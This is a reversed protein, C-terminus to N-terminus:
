KIKVTNQLNKTEYYQSFIAIEAKVVKEILEITYWAERKIARESSNLPQLEKKIPLGIKSRIEYEVKRLDEFKYVTHVFPATQYILGTLYGYPFLNVFKNVFERFDNDMCHSDIHHHEKWGKAMRLCWYSQLWTLPNRVFAFTYGFDKKLDLSISCPLCHSDGLEEIFDTERRNERITRRIYRGGTRPIHIYVSNNYRLAM